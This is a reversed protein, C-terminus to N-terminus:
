SGVGKEEPREEAERDGAATAASSPDVPPKEWARDPLGEDLGLKLSRAFLSKFYDGVKEVREVPLVADEAPKDKPDSM